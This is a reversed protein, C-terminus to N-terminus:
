GDIKCCKDLKEYAEPNRKRNDADYGADTIAKELSELNTKEPVYKVMVMKTKVDVSVEKVGEVHTVAAEINKACTGCVMSTAHISATSLGGAQEQKQGCANLLIGLTFLILIQKM